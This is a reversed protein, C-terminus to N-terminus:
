STVEQRKTQQLKTWEVVSILGYFVPGCLSLWVAWAPTNPYSPLMALCWLCWAYGGVIMFKRWKRPALTPYMFGIPAFTMLAFGIMMAANVWVNGCYGAYFAVVNWYSPFGMFYGDAEDKAGVNSFGMVSAVLAPAVFALGPEPVWGLRLVMMLPVFTFTLFDVLDDIKRGDFLPANTKVDFKRAFTGDTMDVFTAALLWGFVWRPDPHLKFIELMALANFVLGCATYVHVGYALIRIM